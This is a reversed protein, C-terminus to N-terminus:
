GGTLTFTTTCINFLFVLDQPRPLPSPHTWPLSYSQSSTLKPHLVPNSIALTVQAAWSHILAKGTAGPSTYIQSKQQWQKTTLNTTQM